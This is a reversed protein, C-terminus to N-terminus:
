KNLPNFFFFFEISSATVSILRILDLHLLMDKNYEELSQFYLHCLTLCSASSINDQNKKVREIEPTISM